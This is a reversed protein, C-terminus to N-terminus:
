LNNLSELDILDKPRGSAKKNAKLKEISIIRVLINDVNHDSLTSLIDKYDQNLM